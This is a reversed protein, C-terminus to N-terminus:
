LNEDSAHDSPRRVDPQADTRSRTLRMERLQAMRARKAEAAAIYQQMAVAGEDAQRQRRRILEQRASSPTRDRMASNGLIWGM